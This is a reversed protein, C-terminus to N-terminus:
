EQAKNKMDPMLVNLQNENLFSALDLYKEYNERLMWCNSKSLKNNHVDYIDYAKRILKNDMNYYYKSHEFAVETCGSNFTNYKRSFYILKGNDYLREYIFDWAQNQNYVTEVIYNINKNEPYQYIEYLSNLERVNNQSYFPEIDSENDEYRAYAQYYDGTVEKSVEFGNIIDSYLNDIENIKYWAEETEDEFITSEDDTLNANENDQQTEYNELKLENGTNISDTSNMNDNDFLFMSSWPPLMVPKQKLIDLIKASCYKKDVVLRFMYENFWQDTMILHGQYGANAGWSNEVLWKKAKGDKDLDVACLTMAHSSGSAFTQIRQKKDMSFTTGMLSGYDYENIDLLGKERNYFKGVDCSFYMMTSDKISAIAVEKIDDIPLNIYKWNNGDMVHRDNEIEYLKYFECSPDNMLMVYSNSLDRNIYEEYFSKPTYKKTSIEKGSADRLTYTFEKVPEGYALVLMRYIVSLMEIKRNQLKENNAKKNAYMDRLELAYEKLKLTILESIKNTNDSNFTEPQVTSPVLGYKMVLDSVGTFQGGDGLANKLLWENDKSDLPEKIHNIILSLFLNSKELQDYFFLYDHSFTFNGLNYKAIMEARLVNLGTFLWCRGSSKQDTIGKSNVRNSFYTDFNAANEMNQALQNIRGNSIINKLTKNDATNSYGSRIKNLETENLGQNTQATLSSFSALVTVAIFGAKIVNTFNM